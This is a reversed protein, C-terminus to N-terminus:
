KTEEWVRFTFVRCQEDGDDHRDDAIITERLVKARQHGSPTSHSDSQHIVAVAEGNQAHYQVEASVYRPSFPFPAQIRFQLNSSERDVVDM